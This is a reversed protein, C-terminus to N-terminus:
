GFTTLQGLASWTSNNYYLTFSEIDTRNATGTPSTANAWLISTAGSNVQLASAYYGVAGQKLILTAVYARDNVTPVNTLNVTFNASMSSHYFISGTTWDHTIVGTAGTKNNVIEQIQQVTTTGQVIINNVTGGTFTPGTPGTSGTAGAQGTPGTPGTFGTPGQSGTPGTNGTSGQSGTPGTNGTSGQSGTPGTNGTSGQSGTPGTFGTSGQSGTPGTNGTPGTSGQSEIGFAIQDIIDNQAYLAFRGKLGSTGAVLTNSGIQVGNKYWYSGINQVSVTFIDNTAYTTVASGFSNNYYLYVNGNQFSFGYTNM